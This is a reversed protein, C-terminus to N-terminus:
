RWRRTQKKSAKAGSALLGRATGIIGKRKARKRLERSSRMGREEAAHLLHASRDRAADYDFERAAAVAKRASAMGADALAQSALAARRRMEQTDINELAAAREAARRRLEDIRHQKQKERRKRSYYFVAGLAAVAGVGIVITTLPGKGPRRRREQTEVLDSLPPVGNSSAATAGGNRVDDIFDTVANTFEDPADGPVSHGAGPVVVLQARQMEAVTREAVEPTLVDSESGRILLTPCEVARYLEWMEEGSMSSGVRLTDVGERFRKDFKWTWKGDGIPKLRHSMRERLNDLSRRPNFRHAMEVFQDFELEDPGRTFRMINDVGEAAHEPGVDVLVLAEVHQPYKSAYAVSNLGGMSHGILIFRDLGAERRFAEMDEVFADRSYDGDDSWDSDGHGRQDLAIVRFRDQVRRGFEDYMHGSLGFGHVALIVPASAQGWEQYNLKLGRVSVQHELYEATVM